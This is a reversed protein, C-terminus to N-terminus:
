EVARGRGAECGERALLGVLVAPGDDGLGEAGDRGGHQGVPRQQEGRVPPAGVQGAARAQAVAAEEQAWAAGGALLALAGGIALSTKLTM